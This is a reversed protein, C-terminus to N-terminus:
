KAGEPMIWIVECLRIFFISNYEKVVIHDPKADAIFGNVTGRPTDIVARSGILSRVAAYLYPEVVTVQLPQTQSQPMGASYVANPYMNM